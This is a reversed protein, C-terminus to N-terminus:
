LDFGWSKLFCLVVEHRIKFLYAAKFGGLAALKDSQFMAEWGNRLARARSGPGRM